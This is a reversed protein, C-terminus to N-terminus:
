FLLQWKKHPTRSAAYVQPFRARLSHGTRDRVRWQYFPPLHIPALERDQYM